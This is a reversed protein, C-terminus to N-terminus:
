PSGDQDEESLNKNETTKADSDSEEIDWELLKSKKSRRRRRVAATNNQREEAKAYQPEELNSSGANLNLPSNCHPCEIALNSLLIEKRAKIQRSCGPCSAILWTQDPSASSDM